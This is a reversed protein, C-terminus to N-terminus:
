SEFRYNSMYYCRQIQIRIKPSIYIQSIIYDLYICTSWCYRFLWRTFKNSICRSLIKSFWSFYEQLLYSNSNCWTIANSSCSWFDHIACITNFNSDDPLSDLKYSSSRNFNYNILDNNCLKADCHEYRPYIFPFNSDNCLFLSRYNYNFCWM